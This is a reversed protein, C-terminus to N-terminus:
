MCTHMVPLLFRYLKFFHNKKLAGVDMIVEPCQFDVRIRGERIIELTIIATAKIYAHIVVATLLHHLVSGM